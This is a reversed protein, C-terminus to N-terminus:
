QAHWGPGDGPLQLHTGEQLFLELLGVSNISETAGILCSRTAHTIDLLSSHAGDLGGRLQPQQAKCRCKLSRWSSCAWFITQAPAVGGSRMVAAKTKWSHVSSAMSSTWETHCPCFAGKDQNHALPPDGPQCMFPLVQQMM